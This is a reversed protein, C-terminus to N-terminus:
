RRGGLHIHFISIIIPITIIHADIAQNARETPIVFSDNLFSQAIHRTNTESAGTDIM